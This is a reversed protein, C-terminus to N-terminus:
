EWPESMALGLISVSSVCVIIHLFTMVADHDYGFAPDLEGVWGM